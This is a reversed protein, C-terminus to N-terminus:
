RKNKYFEIFQEIENKIYKKGIENNINKWKIRYVCYGNENLVEDRKKDHEIRTEHQKGDIELDIKKDEIYFDLFYNYCDNLGLVKKSVSYNHEFKIKNQKLVDIFFKEPYSVINRSIWGKHKGSEILELVTKKSNDSRLKHNCENSCTEARSYIKNIRKVEFEKGCIICVRTKCMFEDSLANNNFNKVRGSLTKSIKIKTADSCKRNKNNFTASCNRNCFKNGKKLIKKGCNPCLREKKKLHSDDIKNTKIYENLKEYVKKNAYGFFKLLVENKSNSKKIIDNLNKDNM